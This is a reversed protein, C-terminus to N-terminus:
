KPPKNEVLFAIKEVDAARVLTLVSTVAEYRANRDVQLYVKQEAGATLRERILGPLVDPSVSDRDLFIKRDRTITIALSDERNARRMAIAHGVKALDVGRAYPKTLPATMFVFVLILMVAAFGTVDIRCILLAPKPRKRTM